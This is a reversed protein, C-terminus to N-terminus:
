GGHNARKLFSQLAKLEEDTPILGDLDATQGAMIHQGLNSHRGALLAASTLCEWSM